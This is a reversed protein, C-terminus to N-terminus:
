VNDIWASVLRIRNFIHDKPEGCEGYHREEDHRVYLILETLAVFVKEPMHYIYPQPTARM